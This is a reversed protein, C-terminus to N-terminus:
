CNRGRPLMKRPLHSLAKAPFQRAYLWPGILRSELCGTYSCKWDVTQVTRVSDTHPLSLSLWCLCEGISTSHAIGSGRREDFLHGLQFCAVNLFSDFYSWLDRRSGFIPIDISDLGMLLESTQAALTNLVLVITVAIKHWPPFMVRLCVTSEANCKKM